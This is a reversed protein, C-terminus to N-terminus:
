SQSQKVKAAIRDQIIKARDKNNTVRMISGPKAPTADENFATSNYEGSAPRGSPKDAPIFLNAFAKPSTKALNDIKDPTLGHTQGLEVVKKIYDDGYAEKAEDMASQLNSEEAHKIAESKLNESVRATALAVAEAVLEDQSKSPTESSETSKNAKSIGELLERASINEEAAKSLVEEKARMEANEAEIKTIHEQASLIHRELDEQTAFEREGVKIPKPTQDEGAPQDFGNNSSESKDDTDFSM